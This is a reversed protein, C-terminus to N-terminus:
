QNVLLNDILRTKGVRAAILLVARDAVSPIPELTETDRVETYELRVLPSQQVTEEIAKRVSQSSRDGQRVREEGQKLARYLLAAARREEPSLYVNRSSMALGDPERVTPCMVVEMDLNLDRALRRLIVTQQYDKQGFYAIDPRVINFLKLVVTAVGRFHGPRLHGELIDGLGTVEVITKHGEPYIEKETPMFLVDVGVSECKKWDGEPDRPYRGYDEDPGFQAPNVFLSVVVAGCDEKARKMLSLHGEHLAGMTPVFGIRRGHTHRRSAERRMERVTTITRM